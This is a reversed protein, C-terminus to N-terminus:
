KSVSALIYSKTHPIALSTSVTYMKIVCQRKEEMELSGMHGISARQAAMALLKKVTAILLIPM